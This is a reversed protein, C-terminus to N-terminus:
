RLTAETTYHNTHNCQVWSENTWDWSLHFIKLPSLCGCCLNRHLPLLALPGMYYSKVSHLPDTALIFLFVECPWIRMGKVWDEQKSGSSQQYSQWLARTSLDPTKGLMARWVWMDGSSHVVLGNTVVTRLRLDWGVTMILWDVTEM